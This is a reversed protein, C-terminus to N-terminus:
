CCGDDRLNRMRGVFEDIQFSIFNFHFTKTETLLIGVAVFDLDIAIVVAMPDVIAVVISSLNVFDIQDAAIAYM